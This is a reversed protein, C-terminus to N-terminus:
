RYSKQRRKRAGRGGPKSTEKSRMDSVLISRDYERLSKKLNQDKTYKILALAIATRIADTGSSVGGGNVTVSIDVNKTIGGAIELPEAIKIRLVRPSYNELLKKNIRVTGSGKSVTAIAVSTKRKGVGIAAEM